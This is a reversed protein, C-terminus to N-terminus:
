KITSPYLREGKMRPIFWMLVAGLLGSIAGGFVSGTFTGLMFCIAADPPMAYSLGVLLGMAMPTSLGPMAGWVIGLVAGASCILLYMPSFAMSFSWMPM